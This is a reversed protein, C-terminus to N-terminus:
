LRNLQASGVTTEPVLTHTQPNSTEHIIRKMYAYLEKPNSSKFLPAASTSGLSKILFTIISGIVASIADWWSDVLTKILGFTAEWVEDLCAVNSAASFIGLKSVEPGGDIFDGLSCFIENPDSGSALVGWLGSTVIPDSRSALIVDIWMSAMSKSMGDSLKGGTFESVGSGNLFFLLISHMFANTLVTNYIKWLNGTCTTNSRMAAYRLVRFSILYSPWEYYIIIKSRLLKTTYLLVYFILLYDYAMYM